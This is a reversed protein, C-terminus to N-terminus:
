VKGNAKETRMGDCRELLKVSFADKETIAKNPFNRKTTAGVPLAAPVPSGAAGPCASRQVCEVGGTGGRLKTDM